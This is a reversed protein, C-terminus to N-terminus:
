NKLQKYVCAYIQVSRLNSIRAQSYAAVTKDFLINDSKIKWNAAKNHSIFLNYIIKKSIQQNLYFSPNFFKRLNALKCFSTERFWKFQWENLFLIGIHFFTICTLSRYLWGLMKGRTSITIPESIFKKGHSFRTYSVKYQEFVIQNRM